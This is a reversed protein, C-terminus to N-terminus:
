TASSGVRSLVRLLQARDVPKHLFSDAGLAASLDPDNIISCVIMRAHRGGETARLAQLGEWGDQDPMMIDLLIIHPRLEDVIALAEQISKAGYVRYPEGQLYRRFLAILGENDDIVLVTREPAIHFPLILRVEGEPSDQRKLPIKLSALLQQAAAYPGEASTDEESALPRYSIVVERGQPAVVMSVLVYPDRQCQIVHSLLNILAQRVMMRNAVVSNENGPPPEFRLSIGRRQALPRVVHIVEEILDGLSFRQEGAAALREVEDRLRAFPRALGEESLTGEKGSSLLIEAIAQAGRQLARYAQRESIGLQMAISIISQKAIAYRYLVQYCQVAPNNAPVHPGPDLSEIALRLMRRLLQGRSVASTQALFPIEQVLPHTELYVPDDLHALANRVTQAIDPEETMLPNSRDFPTLFRRDDRINASIITTHTLPVTLDEENAVNGRM